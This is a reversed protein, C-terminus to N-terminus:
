VASGHGAAVSKKMRNVVNGKHLAQRLPTLSTKVPGKSKSALHGLQMHKSVNAGGLRKGIAAIHSKWLSREKLIEVVQEKLSM